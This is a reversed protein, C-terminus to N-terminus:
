KRLPRNRKCYWDHFFIQRNLFCGFLEVLPGRGNALGNTAAREGGDLAAPLPEDAAGVHAAPHVVRRPRTRLTSLREDARSLNATSVRRRVATLIDDLWSMILGSLISNTAPIKEDSLSFITASIDNKSAPIKEDMQSFNTASRTATLIDHASSLNTRVLKSIVAPLIDDASTFITSVIRRSLGSVNHTPSSFNLM